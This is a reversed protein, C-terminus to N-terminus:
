HVLSGLLFSYHWSNVVQIIPPQHVEGGAEAGKPNLAEETGDRCKPYVCLVESWASSVM